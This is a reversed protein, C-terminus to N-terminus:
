IGLYLKFIGREHILPQSRRECRRCVTRAVHLAAAARGGSPLIFSTLPPLEAELEDIWHELEDVRNQTLECKTGSHEPSAVISGVDLLTVLIEKLQTFMAPGHQQVNCLERALGVHASLEDVAGLVEFTRDDKRLFANGEEGVNYLQSM